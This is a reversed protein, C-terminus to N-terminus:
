NGSFGWAPRRIYRGLHNSMAKRDTKTELVIVPTSNIEVKKLRAPSIKPSLKRLWSIVWTSPM